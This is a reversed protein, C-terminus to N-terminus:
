VREIYNRNDPGQPKSVDARQQFLHYLMLREPLALFKCDVSPRDTAHVREWKVLDSSRIVISQGNLGNHKKGQNIAVYYHGRWYTIDPTANWKGDSYIKRTWEILENPDSNKLTPEAATVELSMVVVLIVALGSCVVLNRDLQKVRIM